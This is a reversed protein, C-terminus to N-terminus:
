IILINSKNRFIAKSESSIQNDFNFYIKSYIKIMKARTATSPTKIILRKTLFLSLSFPHSFRYLAFIGNKEIARPSSFM